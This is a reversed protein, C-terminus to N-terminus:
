FYTVVTIGRVSNEPKSTSVAGDPLGNYLALEEQLPLYFRTSWKGRFWRVRAGPCGEGVEKLIQERTEKQSDDGHYGAVFVVDEIRGGLRDCM